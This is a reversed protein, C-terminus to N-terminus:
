VDVTFGIKLTVQYHDIAGDVLHGRIGSVEFWRLNHVSEGTRRVATQIADEDLDTLDVTLTDDGGRLRVDIREVDEFDWSDGESEVTIEDGDAVISVVDDEGDGRITLVGDDFTPDTISPVWRNDLAELRLFARGWTRALERTNWSM